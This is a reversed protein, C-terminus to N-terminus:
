YLLMRCISMLMRCCSLIRDLLSRYLKGKNTAATNFHRGEFGAYQWLSGRRGATSWLLQTGVSPWVLGGQGWLCM